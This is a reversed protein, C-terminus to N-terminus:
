EYEVVVTGPQYFSAERKAARKAAAKSSFSEQSGGVIQNNRTSRLRWRWKGALDEYVVFKRVPKM